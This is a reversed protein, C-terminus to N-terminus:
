FRFRVTMDVNPYARREPRQEARRFAAEHATPYTVYLRTRTEQWQMWGSLLIQHGGPMPWDIAVTPGWQLTTQLGPGIRSLPAGDVEITNQARLIFDSKHFIRIGASWIGQGIQHRLAAEADITVLTDLPIERFESWLLRGIRLENRRADAQISWGPMFAWDLTSRLGLERSAQDNKVRGALEFDEVTYNARILFATRWQVAPTPSWTFEPALRISRRWNNEISRDAHLYVLHLAEGAALWGISFWPNLVLDHRVRLHLALEDRDDPNTEPTDYRLISSSGFLEMRQRHSVRWTQQTYLEFRNQNFNANTLIDSRRQVQDPPLDDTDTLRSDRVGGGASLGFRSTLSRGQREVEVQSDLSQRISKSNYLPVATDDPRNRNRVHRLQNVLDFRLLGSWTRSIPFRSELHVLTTDIRISEIYPSEATNLISSTAYSERRALSHMVGADLRFDAQAYGIRTGYRSTVFRRPRIDAVEIAAYPDLHWADIDFGSSWAELGFVAGRDPASNREDSMVGIQARTRIEAVPRIELGVLAVDQRTRTSKYEFSRIDTALALTPFFGTTLRLHQQREDQINRAENNLLFFRSAFRNDFRMDFAGSTAKITSAHRWHIADYERLFATEGTATQAATGVPALLAFGILFHPRRM